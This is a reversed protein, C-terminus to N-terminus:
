LSKKFSYLSFESNRGKPGACWNFLFMKMKDKRMVRNQQSNQQYNKNLSKNLTGNLGKYPTGNRTKNLSKNLSKNLTGNLGKYPTGNPRAASGM